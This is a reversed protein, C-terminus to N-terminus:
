WGRKNKLQRYKKDLHDQKEKVPYTWKVHPMATVSFPVKKSTDVTVKVARVDPAGFVQVRYFHPFRFEFGHETMVELPNDFVFKHHDGHIALVPKKFEVVRKKFEDLIEAFGAPVKKVITDKGEEDKEIHSEKYFMNAHFILVLAKKDKAEALNYDLWAMNAKQRKTYEALDEEFNNNSGVIHLTAFQVDETSWSLNEVYASHEPMLSTQSKLKIEKKGLQLRDKFFQTRLFGLRELPKFEGKKKKHCDTWENDGPTYILPTEFLEFKKKAEEIIKNECSGTLIDGVHVAFDPQAQDIQQRLEDLMGYGEPLYYPADGFIIAEVPKAQAFSPLCLAILVLNIIKPM